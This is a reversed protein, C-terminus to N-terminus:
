MIPMVVDGEDQCEDNRAMSAMIVMIAVVVYGEDQVNTTGQWVKCLQWWSM